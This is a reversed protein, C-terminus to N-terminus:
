ASVNANHVELLFPQGKLTDMLLSRAPMSVLVARQPRGHVNQLIGRKRGLLICGQSHTQWGRGVDGAFNGNHLLISGRGPVDCVGYVRGFHPSWVAVCTYLGQPICSIQKANDRWPLEVTHILFGLGLLQGWTGQEHFPERQLVLRKM